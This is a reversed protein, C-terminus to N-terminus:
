QRQRQYVASTELPIRVRLLIWANLLTFVIATAFAHFVLPLAFLEIAVVLYNPHRIFRYPGRRVPPTGPLILIRTNWHRGLSLICWYRMLQALVFYSFPIFWWAPLAQLGGGYHVEAILSVFFSIHVLVIYKYHNAGVEYGGSARIWRANRKAVMLESIRQALVVCLVTWFISM